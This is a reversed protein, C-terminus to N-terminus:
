NSSNQKIKKEATEAEYGAILNEAFLRASEIDEFEAGDHDAYHAKRGGDFFAELVIWCDGDHFIFIEQEFGEGLIGLDLYLLESRTWETQIRETM